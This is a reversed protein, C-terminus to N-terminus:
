YVYDSVLLGNNDFLNLRDHQSDLIDNNVWVRWESSLFDKDQGYKQFCSGYTAVTNLFARCANGQDSGLLTSNYFSYDVAKCGGLSFLYTQCQGSLHAIEYRSRYVPPCNKPLSPNFDYYNGLYGTCKNLRFNKNVVSKNSYINVYNNSSLIIDKEENAGLPEFIEVAQPIIFESHNSKLRWGTINPPSDGSELRTYLRIESPRNRASSAAASVIRVKEFYPSIQERTFGSPIRSDPIENKKATGVSSTQSPTPSSAKITTKPASSLTKGTTSTATLSKKFDYDKFFQPAAFIFFVM